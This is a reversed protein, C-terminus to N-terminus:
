LFIFVAKKILSASHTYMFLYGYISGLLLPASYFFRDKHDYFNYSKLKKHNWYHAIFSNSWCVVILSNRDTLIKKSSEFLM